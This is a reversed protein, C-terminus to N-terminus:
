GHIEEYLPEWLSRGLPTIATTTQLAHELTELRERLQELQEQTRGGHEHASLGHARATRLFLFVNAFAHYAVIIFYVPRHTNRFPSFYLTQDTGDDLPGLMTLIHLYQHTAEHVLIEALAYPDNRNAICIVGPAFGGSASNAVGPTAPMPILDRVVYCVWPVYIPAFEAILSLAAGCTRLLPEAKADVDAHGFSLTETALLRASSRPPLSEATLVTWRMGRQALVPLARADTVDWGNERHQFAIKRWANASWVNLSVSQPTASVELADAPPLLWRDFRFCVPKPLRLEGEGPYGCELLRLGLSGARRAMDDADRLFLAANVDGLALNWVTDFTADGSLWNTLVPRLGSSHSELHLAYREMFFQVTLRAHEVVVRELFPKHLGVQPCAFGRCFLDESLTDCARNHTRSM